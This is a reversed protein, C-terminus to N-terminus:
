WLGLLRCIGEAVFPVAALIAFCVLPRKTTRRSYQELEADTMGGNEFYDIEDTARSRPTFQFIQASM